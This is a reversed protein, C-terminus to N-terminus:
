GSAIWGRDTAFAPSSLTASTLMLPTGAYDGAKAGVAELVHVPFGSVSGMSDAASSSRCSLRGLSGAGPTRWEAIDKSEPGYIRGEYGDLWECLRSQEPQGDRMVVVDRDVLLRPYEDAM